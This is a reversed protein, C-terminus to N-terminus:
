KLDDFIGWTIDDYTMNSLFKLGQTRYLFRMEINANMSPNSSNEIAHIFSKHITKYDFVFTSWLGVSTLMYIFVEFHPIKVLVKKQIGLNVGSTCARVLAFLM